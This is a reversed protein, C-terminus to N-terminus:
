SMLGGPEAGIEVEDVEVMQWGGDIRMVRRALM